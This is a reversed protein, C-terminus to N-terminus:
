KSASRAHFLKPSRKRKRLTSRPALESMVRILEHIAKRQVMLDNVPIQILKKFAEMKSNSSNFFKVRMDEKIVDVSSQISQNDKLFDFLKFYFSVIQSQFIKRDSEEKWNKWIDSFLSEGDAVDPKSANFYEKLNEIEKTSTAQSLYSSFGLIMCLQFALIYSTYNM